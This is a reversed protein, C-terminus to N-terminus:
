RPAPAAGIDATSAMERRLHRDLVFTGFPVLAAVFAWASRALPWRRALAAHALAAVFLMFLVGHVWGVVQVTEPRGALYKLPMAIGLLVLYSVGELLGVRRLRNLSAVSM